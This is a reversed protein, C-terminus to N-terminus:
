KKWWKLGGKYYEIDELASEIRSQLV